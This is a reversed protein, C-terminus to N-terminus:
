APYGAKPVCSLDFYTDTIGAANLSTTGPTFTVAGSTAVKLAGVVAQDAPIEPLWNEGNGGPTMTITGSTDISVLWWKFSSVPIVAGTLAVNTQTTQSGMHGGVGFLFTNGTKVGKSGIITESVTATLAPDGVAKTVAVTVVIAQTTTAPTVDINTSAAVASAVGVLAEIEVEAATAIAAVTGEDGVVTYVATVAAAGDVSVNVTLIDDAQVAGGLAIRYTNTTSNVALGAKSFSRQATLTRLAATELDGLNKAIAM